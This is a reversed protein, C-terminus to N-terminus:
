LRKNRISNGWKKSLAKLRGILVKCLVVKEVMSKIVLYELERMLVNFLRARM